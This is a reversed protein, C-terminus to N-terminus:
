KPKTMKVKGKEENCVETEPNLQCLLKKVAEIQKQQERIQAAQTEIQKQQEKIANILVVNLSGERVEEIMGKNNRTVLEPAVEAVDEANLGVDSAGGEKWKFSVPNLRKIINLGGTFPQFDSKLASSSSSAACRVLAYGGAGAGITQLRACIHVASPAFTDLSSLFLNPTFLGKFNGTDITQAAYFDVTSGLVNPGGRMLVSGTFSATVVAGAPTRLYVDSNDSLLYMGRDNFGGDGVFGMRSGASDYFSMFARNNNNVANGQLRILEDTGKIHLKVLPATTGIGINTNAGGNIGSIGGLILSNSQTVFAGYGIAAANTLNDAGVNADTGLITIKSGTTNTLGANAGVFINLNGMTNNFGAFYGVFSNSNGINNLRGAFSGIFTDNSGSFNNGGAHSGFFSNSAGIGNQRGAEFGFFSNFNGTTNTTGSSAGFFSNKSGATNSFGSGYGFFSNFSGDVNQTGTFGGFFSNQTGITNNEGSGDGFFSNHHTLNQSGARTGFFSNGTGFTTSTGANLGVFTNQEGTTISAGTGSGIFLNGNPSASIFRQSGLNFQTAANLINASGTGGVSFNVGAQPTNTNQVYDGSGPLPTRADSLRPDSTRVFESLDVGNLTLANDATTATLSRIAYPVSLIQWRTSVTTFPQNSNRRYSIEIFRDAGPFSAAGFDLLVAFSHSKVDVANIFNSAGIQNGATPADFLKFEMEFAGSAPTVENPLTAQFPFTTPQASVSSFSFIVALIILFIQGSATFVFKSKEFIRKM